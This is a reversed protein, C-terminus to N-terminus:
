FRMVLEFTVAMNSFNNTKGIPPTAYPLTQAKLRRLLSTKASNSCKVANCGTDTDTNLIIVANGLLLYQLLVGCCRLELTGARCCWAKYTM